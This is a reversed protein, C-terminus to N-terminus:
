GAMYAGDTALGAYDRERAPEALERSSAPTLEWSADDYGPLERIAQRRLADILLEAASGSYESWDSSQYELCNCAKLIAVPEPLERVREFRALEAVEPESYRQAVAAANARTLIRAILDPAVDFAIHQGDAYGAPIYASVRRAQGYSVLTNIHFPHVQYCSM